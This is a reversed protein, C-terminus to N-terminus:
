KTNAQIVNIQDFTVDIIVRYLTFKLDSAVNKVYIYNNRTNYRIM